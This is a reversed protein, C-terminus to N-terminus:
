PHDVDLAYSRVMNAARVAVGRETTSGTELWQWYHVLEHSLSCLMSALANDRGHQVVLNQYDGTPIRIYPNNRTDFPLFISATASEGDVTVIRRSGSLYVPLRVPFDHRARLWKAYRIFAQRVEGNGRHGIIRLGTTM